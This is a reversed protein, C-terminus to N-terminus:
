CTSTGARGSISSCTDQFLGTITGHFAFVVMVILAAIGAILLGYEVASAGRDRDRILVVHAPM